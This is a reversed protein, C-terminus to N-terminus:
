CVFSAYKRTESVSPLPLREAEGLPPLSPLGIVAVSFWNPSVLYWFSIMRFLNGFGPHGDM